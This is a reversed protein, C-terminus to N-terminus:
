IQPFSHLPHALVPPFRPQKLDAVGVALETDIRNPPEGDTSSVPTQGPTQLARFPTLM